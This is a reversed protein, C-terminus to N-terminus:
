SFWRRGGTILFAVADGVAAWTPVGKVKLLGAVSGSASGTVYAHLKSSPPDAGPGLTCCANPAAPMWTAVIVTVSPAPTVAVFVTATAAVAPGTAVRVASFSVGTFNLGFFPVLTLKVSFM